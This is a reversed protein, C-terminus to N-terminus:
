GEIKDEAELWDEALRRTREKHSEQVVLENKWDALAGYSSHRDFEAMTKSM